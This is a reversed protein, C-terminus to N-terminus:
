RHTVAAMALLEERVRAAIRVCGPKCLITGVIYATLLAVTYCLPVDERAANRHSFSRQAQWGQLLALYYQIQCAPQQRHSLLLGGLAQSHEM